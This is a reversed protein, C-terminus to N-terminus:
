TEMQSSIRGQSASIIKSHIRFFDLSIALKKTKTKHYTKNQNKV